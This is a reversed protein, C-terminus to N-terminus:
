PRSVPEFNISDLPYNCITEQVVGNKVDGTYTIAVRYARVYDELGVYVRGLSDIAVDEPGKILGKM